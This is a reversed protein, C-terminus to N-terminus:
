KEAQVIKFVKGTVGTPGIVTSGPVCVEGNTDQGFGKVYHVPALQMGDFSIGAV